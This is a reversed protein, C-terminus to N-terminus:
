KNRRRRRRRAAFEDEIRQADAAVLRNKEALCRHAWTAADDSSALENLEAVLRDRLQASAETGLMSASSRSRVQRNRRSAGTSAGRNPRREVSWRKAGVSQCTPSQQRRLRLQRRESIPRMLIMRAPLGSLLSYPMVARMPSRRGWGNRPFEFADSLALSRRRPINTHHRNERQDSGIQQMLRGVFPAMLPIGGVDPVFIHRRPRQSLIVM